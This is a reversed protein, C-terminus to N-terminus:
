GSARSFSAVLIVDTKQFIERIISATLAQSVDTLKSPVARRLMGSIMKISAVTLVQFRM